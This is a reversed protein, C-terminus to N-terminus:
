KIHLYYYIYTFLLFRIKLTSRQSPLSVYPLLQLGKIFLVVICCGQRHGTFCRDYAETMTITRVGGHRIKRWNPINGKPEPYTSAQSGLYGAKLKGHFSSALWKTVM